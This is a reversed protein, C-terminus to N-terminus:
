GVEEVRTRTGARAAVGAPIETLGTEAPAPEARRAQRRRRMRDAARTMPTLEAPPGSDARLHGALGAVTPFEFLRVLPVRRDLAAELRQQVLAMLLSHGGLDVFTVDPDVGPVGLVECWATSILATLPDTGVLPGDTTAPLPPPLLADVDLKGTTGMPLAAILLVTRPLMFEPLTLALAARLAAPEPTAGHAPVVYGIIEKDGPGAGGPRARAVVAAQGVGALAALAAEVEGLEVRYGRIKVLRDARGLFVLRGDPERRALDGTRYTRVGRDVGFRSATLETRQWYGLAVQPARVVVEGTLCTPRGAPDVLIVEVGPLPRGVPVTARDLPAGPALHYQAAFSIETTGYGNVFVAEPAFHRRALEVDHRTVEEGGLLVARIEPLARDPGLSACLYRYVTPTSHYITVRHRGLTRALQALGHTRIDVPVAAAGALLASFLDTVAMDYGFSTLVSTRDAATIAFNRLQNAIGALVNRHSQVVGKPTGTSGSTYLLYAPDDPTADSALAAVIASLEPAPGPAGLEVIRLDPRGTLHRLREAAAAHEADTLLLEAASDTLIQVLRHEPYTPDLPVYARGAVLTALLATITSAGHRCLLAVQGGDIALNVGRRAATRPAPPGGAPAGASGRIAAATVAVAHGLEQYTLRTDESLVAPRDPHRRVQAAFAAPLTTDVGLEVGSVAGRLHLRSLEEPERREYACHRLLEGTGGAVGAALETLLTVLDQRVDTLLPGPCGDLTIEGCPDALRLAVGLGDALPEGGWEGRREGASPTSGALPEPAAVALESRPAAQHTRTTAAHVVALLDPIPQERTLDIRLEGTSWRIISEPRGTYRRLLVALGALLPVALPVACRAALEGLRATLEADLRIVSPGLPADATVASPATVPPDASM